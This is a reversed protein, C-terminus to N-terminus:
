RDLSRRHPRSVRCRRIWSSRTAGYPLAQTMMDVGYVADDVTNQSKISDTQNSLTEESVSDKLPAM